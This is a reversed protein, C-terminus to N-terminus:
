CASPAPATDAQQFQSNITNSSVLLQLLHVGALCSYCQGLHAPSAACSLWRLLEKVYEALTCQFTITINIHSPTFGLCSCFVQLSPPPRIPMGHQLQLMVESNLSIRGPSSGLARCCAISHREVAVGDVTSWLPRGTSSVYTKLMPQWGICHSIHAPRSTQRCAARHRECQVSGHLSKAASM